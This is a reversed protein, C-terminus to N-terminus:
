SEDFIPHNGEMGESACRKIRTPVQHSAHRQAKQGGGPVDQPFIAGGSPDCPLAICLRPDNIFHDFEGSWRVVGGCIWAEVNERPPEKANDEGIDM